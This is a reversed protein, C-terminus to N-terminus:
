GNPNVQYYYDYANQIAIMYPLIEARTCNRKVKVEQGGNYVNYFPAANEFAQRLLDYGPKSTNSNSHVLQYVRRLMGSNDIDNFVDQDEASMLQEVTTYKDYQDGQAYGVKYYKGDILEYEKATAVWKKYDVVYEGTNNYEVIPATGEYLQAVQYWTQSGGVGVGENSYSIAYTIAKGTPSNLEDVTLYLTYECGSPGSPKYDDGTTRNDVNDRRIMVTVPVEVGDVNITLDKGFLTDFIQKDEGVNAIVTTGNEKYRQDFVQTLYNYGTASVTDNLIIVFEDHVADMKRGFQLSILTSLDTNLRNAGLTYTVYIVRETYPPVWDSTNFSGYTDDSNDKTTISLGNNIASNSLTSEVWNPGLYWYTVPTNNYLTVRYTVTGNQKPSNVTSSLYTPHTFGVEVNYANNSSSLLEVKTIYLTEPPAFTMESLIINTSDSHPIAPAESFRWTAYVGTVITTLSLLAIAKMATFGKM